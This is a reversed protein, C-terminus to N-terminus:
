RGNHSNGKGCRRDFGQRGVEMLHADFIGAEERGWIRPLVMGQDRSDAKCTASLADKFRAIEKPHDEEKVEYNM